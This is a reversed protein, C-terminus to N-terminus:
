EAPHAADFRELVQDTIDVSTAAFVLGSQFKNFILTFGLEEGLQGILPMVLEEIEELYATRADAFKRNEDDQLRQLAIAKTELERQMELLKDESLSLRGAAIRERLDAAAETQEQLKADIEAKLAALKDLAAKGKGSEQLIRAVDIVAVKVPAAEQAALPAASPVGLVASLAFVVALARVANSERTHRRM